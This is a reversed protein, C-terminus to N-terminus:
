PAYISILCVFFFQSSSKAPNVPITLVIFINLTVANLLHCFGSPLYLPKLAQFVHDVPFIVNQMLLIKFHFAKLGRFSGADCVVGVAVSLPLQPGGLTIPYLCVHLGGSGSEGLPTGM